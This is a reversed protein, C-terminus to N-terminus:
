RYHSAEMDTNSRNPIFRDGGGPTKRGPTTGGERGPSRGPSRRSSKSPTKRLSESLRKLGAGGGTVQILFNHPLQPYLWCGTWNISFQLKYIWVLVMGSLSQAQRLGRRQLQPQLDGASQPETEAQSSLSFLGDQGGRQDGTGAAM